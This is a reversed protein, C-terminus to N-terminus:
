AHRDGQPMPLSVPESYSHRRIFRRDIFDKWRMLWNGEASFPGWQGIARGDGTNLLALARRQPHYSRPTKGSLDARLNRALVPGQRVAYVGAKPLKNPFASCDGVAYVEPHSISRLTADVLAFGREDLALGSGALCGPAAAGSCWLVQDMPLALGQADILTHDTLKVASRGLHLHVGRRKLVALVRRRAGASWGPLIDHARSVLHWQWNAQPAARRLSHQLALLVEIGAAGAGVVAVRQTTGPPLRDAEFSWSQWHAQFTPLPRISMGGVGDPRRISSGLNLSLRDYPLERENQLTIQRASADIKTVHGPIWEVGARAALATIDINVADWRYQGALWGPAMGSYTVHSHPSVLVVAVEPWPKEALDRLVALHAHGAGALILRPKAHPKM